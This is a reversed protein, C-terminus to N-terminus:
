TVVTGRTTITPPPNAPDASARARPPCAATVTTDMSLKRSKVGISASCLPSNFSYWAFLKLAHPRDTGLFGEAPTHSGSGIGTRRAGPSQAVRKRAPPAAVAPLRKHLVGLGM